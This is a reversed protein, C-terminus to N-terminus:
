SNSWSNLKCEKNKKGEASLGQVNVGRADLFSLCADVNEIQRPSLRCHSVFSLRLLFFFFLFFFLPHYKVNVQGLHGPGSPELLPTPLPHSHDANNGMFCTMTHDHGIVEAWGQCGAERCVSLLTDGGVCGLTCDAKARWWCALVAYGVVCNRTRIINLCELKLGGSICAWCLRRFFWLLWRWLHIKATLGAPSWHGKPARNCCPWLDSREVEGYCALALFTASWSVWRLTWSSMM